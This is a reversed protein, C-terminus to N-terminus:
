EASPWEMNEILMSIRPTKGDVKIELDRINFRMNRLFGKRDWASLTLM